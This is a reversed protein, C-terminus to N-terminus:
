GAFVMLGFVLVGWCLVEDFAADGDVADAELGVVGDTAGGGVVLLFGCVLEEVLETELGGKCFEVDSDLERVVGGRM